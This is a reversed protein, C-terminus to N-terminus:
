SQCTPCYYTSRQGQLRAKIPTRCRRCPAGDREYVYLYQRFYGPSGDERVYDRLTTGGKALARELVNKIARALRACDARSLRGAARGPRIGALFLAENAYINGIGVVNKQDMLFPKIAIRRGRSRAFLYPGDFDSGLPEPGLGRLLAHRLPDDSTWLLTGFRRPDNFRLARGDDLVIDVHDHKRSPTDASLLRLSGSMGLHAIVTGAGTYLLLYKARRATGTIRHGPLQEVLAAPVPWRLRAERVVVATVTRGVVHPTLGRRTTEVEPLEPM